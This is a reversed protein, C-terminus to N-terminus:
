YICRLMVIENLAVEKCCYPCQVYSASGRSNRQLRDVLETLAVNSIVHGCKLLQAPNFGPTNRFASSSVRNGEPNVGCVFTDVCRRRTVPCYCMTWQFLPKWSLLSGDVLAPHAAYRNFREQPYLFSPTAHRHLEDLRSLVTSAHPLELMLTQQGRNQKRRQHQHQSHHMGPLTADVNNDSEDASARDRGRFGSLAPIIYRLVGLGPRRRDTVAGGSYPQHQQQEVSQGEQQQQQQQQQQHSPGGGRSPPVVPPLQFSVRTQEEDFEGVLGKESYEDLQRLMFTSFPYVLRHLLSEPRSTMASDAPFSSSEMADGAKLLSELRHLQDVQDLLDVFVSELWVFSTTYTPIAPPTTGTHDEDETDSLANVPVLRDFNQQNERGGWLRLFPAVCSLLQDHAQRGDAGNSGQPQQQQAEEEEQQQRGLLLPMYGLAVLVHRFTVLLSETARATPPPSSVAASTGDGRLVNLEKDSGDKNMNQIEREAALRWAVLPHQNLLLIFNVARQLTASSASQEAGESTVEAEGAAEGTSKMEEKVGCAVMQSLRQLACIIILDTLLIKARQTTFEVLQVQGEGWPHGHGGHMEGGEEQHRKQGGEEEEEHHSYQARHLEDEYVEEAAEEESEGEEAEEEEEAEEGEEETYASPEESDGVYDTEDEAENEEHSEEDTVAERVEDAGESDDSTSFAAWANVSRRMHRQLPTNQSGESAELEGRDNADEEADLEQQQQQEDQHQTDVETLFSPQAFGEGVTQPGKPREMASPGTVPKLMMSLAEDLSVTSESHLGTCTCASLIYVIWQFTRPYVKQVMQMVDGEDSHDAVPKMLGRRMEQPIAVDLPEQDTPSEVNSGVSMRDYCGLEMQM